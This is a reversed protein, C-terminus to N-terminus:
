DEEQRVILTLDSGDRNAGAFTITWQPSRGEAEAHAKTAIFEKASLRYSDRKTWKTQELYDAHRLDEKRGPKSGSGPQLRAGTARARHREHQRGRNQPNLWPFFVHDQEVETEGIPIEPEHPAPAEGM